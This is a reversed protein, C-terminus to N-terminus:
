FDTELKLCVVLDGSCFFFFFTESNNLLQQVRELFNDYNKVNSALKFTYEGTQLWKAQQWCGYSVNHFFFVKQRSELKFVVISSAQIFLKQAFIFLDTVSKEDQIM